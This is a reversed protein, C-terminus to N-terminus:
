LPWSIFKQSKKNLLIHTHTHMWTHVFVYTRWLSGLGDNKVCTWSNKIYCRRRDQHKGALYALSAAFGLSIDIKAKLASPNFHMGGWKVLKLMLFSISSFEGHRILLQVIEGVESELKQGMTLTPSRACTHVHM